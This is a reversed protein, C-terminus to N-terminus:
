LRELSSGLMGVRRGAGLCPGRWATSGGAPFGKCIPGQFCARVGPGEGSYLLPSVWPSRGNLRVSNERQQRVNRRLDPKGLKVAQAPSMVKIVIQLRSCRPGERLGEYDFHLAIVTSSAWAVCSSIRFCAM